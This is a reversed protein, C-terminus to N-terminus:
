TFQIVEPVLPDEPDRTGMLHRWTHCAWHNECICGCEQLDMMTPKPMDFKPCDYEPIPKYNKNVWEVAEKMTKFKM